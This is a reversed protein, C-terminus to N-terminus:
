RGREPPSAAARADAALVALLRAFDAPVPSQLTLTKGTRPHEFGLTAAHLAQRKFARLTDILVPTAGRPLGFRGGYVPDGVIPYKIHSLHLRIQHTRGTELKVSLYTHARFRELVRYHTVAPRGSVRIAMRLRDGRHRGIPEDITGGGTMVGVCVAVYERAMTRAELQRSLSTQAKPNRAVVLLGSTDKDLRHILGARPLAALKQDLGLLANQLTHRPNGAGPHVVLGAPKDIVLVDADEHVLRLAIDEAQVEPQAPEDVTMQVQVRSGAEVMDRPKCPNGRVKVAGAEIWGKIRTRSHEPLLCALASDLRQGAMEPPITLDIQQFEPSMPCEFSAAPSRTYQRAKPFGEMTLFRKLSQTIKDTRAAHQEDGHGQTCHDGAAAAVAAVVGFGAGFHDVGAGLLGHLIRAVALGDLLEFRQLRTEGEAFGGALRLQIQDPGIVLGALDIRRDGGGIGEDALIGGVGPHVIGVVHLAQHVELALGVPQLAFEVDVQRLARRDIRSFGELGELLQDLFERVALVHGVRALAHHEQAIAQRIEFQVDGQVVHPAAGIDAGDIAGLVADLVIVAGRGHLTRQLNQHIGISVQLHHIEGGICLLYVRGVVRAVGLFDDGLLM